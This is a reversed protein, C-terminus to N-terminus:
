EPKAKQTLLQADKPLVSMQGSQAMSRALEDIMFGRWMSGAKDGTGLGAVDKPIAAELFSKLVFATFEQRAKSEVEASSTTRKGAVHALPSAPRAAERTTVTQTQWSMSIQDM